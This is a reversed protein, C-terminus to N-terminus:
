AAYISFKTKDIAEKLVPNELSKLSVLDVKRSFLPELAELLSFYNEAYDEVKLMPSFTVLFDIDSREPDFRSDIVSGFVWLQTVHAKQM